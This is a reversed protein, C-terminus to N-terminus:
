HVGLLPSLNQLDQQLSAFHQKTSSLDGSDGAKDLNEALTGVDAVLKALKATDSPELGQQKGAAAVVLDRIAFAHHHVAALDTKQIVEALEDREHGIQTWIEATTGGPVVPAAAEGGETAEAHEGPPTAEPKAAEGAQPAPQGTAPAGETAPAQENSKKSCGAAGAAVILVLIFGWRLLSSRSEFGSKSKM